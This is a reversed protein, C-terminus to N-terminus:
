SRVFIAGERLLNRLAPARGPRDSSAAMVNLAYWCAGSASKAAMLSHHDAYTVSVQTPSNSVAGAPLWQFNSDYAILCRTTLDTYQYGNKGWLQQLVLTADELSQATALDQTFALSPHAPLNLPKAWPISTPTTDLSGSSGPSQTAYLAKCIRGALSPQPQVFGDYTTKTTQTAAAPPSPRRAAHVFLGTVLAVAVVVSAIGLTRRPGRHVEPSRAQPVLDVTLQALESLTTARFASTTRVELEEDNLQGTSFSRNLVEM